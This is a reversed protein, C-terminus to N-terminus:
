TSAAYLIMGNSPLHPPNGSLAEIRVDGKDQEVELHVSLIPDREPHVTIYDQLEAPIDQFAAFHGARWVEDRLGERPYLRSKLDAAQTIEAFAKSCKESALFFCLLNGSHRMKQNLEFADGDLLEGDQGVAVGKTYFVSRFNIYKEMQHCENGWVKYMFAKAKSIILDVRFALMGRKMTLPWLTKEKLLKEANTCSREILPRQDIKQRGQDYYVDIKGPIKL